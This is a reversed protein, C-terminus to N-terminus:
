ACEMWGIMVFDNLSSLSDNMWTVLFIQGLTLGALKDLYSSNCFKKNVRVVKFQRVEDVADAAADNGRGDRTNPLM